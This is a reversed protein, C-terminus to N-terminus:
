GDWRGDCWTAMAAASGGDPGDLDDSGGEVVAVLPFDENSM